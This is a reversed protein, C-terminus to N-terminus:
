APSHGISYILLTFYRLAFYQTPQQQCHATCFVKALVVVSIDGIANENYNNHKYICVANNEWM